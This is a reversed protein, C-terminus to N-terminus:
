EAGEKLGIRIAVLKDYVEPMADGKILEELTRCGGFNQEVWYEEEEIYRLAEDLLTRSITMVM